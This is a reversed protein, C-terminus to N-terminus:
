FLFYNKKLCFNLLTIIQPTSMSTRHPFLPDKLLKSQVTSITSDVAVSTFLGKVDYSVMGEGPQLQELKM